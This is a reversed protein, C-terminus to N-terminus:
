KRFHTAGGIRIGLYWLLIKIRQKRRRIEESEALAWQLWIIDAFKRNYRFERFWIDLESSYTYGLGHKQLQEFVCSLNNKDKVIVKWKTSYLYDHILAIMFENRDIIWHFFAPVSNFDFEFGAPIEIYENKDYYDIYYRIAKLTKRKKNWIQKIYSRRDRVLESFKIYKIM